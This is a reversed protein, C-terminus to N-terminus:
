THSSTPRYALKKGYSEILPKSTPSMAKSTGGGPCELFSERLKPRFQDVMVVEDGKIAVVALANQPRDVWYYESIGGDPTKVEDHGVSFWPCKYVTKTSRVPWDDSM